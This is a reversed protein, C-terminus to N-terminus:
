WPETAGSTTLDSTAASAMRRAVALERDKVELRADGGLV